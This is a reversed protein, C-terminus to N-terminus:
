SYDPRAYYRWFILNLIIFAIVVGLIGSLALDFRHQVVLLPVLSELVQDLGPAHGGSVLGLRRKIFSTVTDGLLAAFSFVLGTAVDLGEVWACAGTILISFLYGRWTKSPGLLPRGDLFHSGCDLPAAFRNRLLRQGIIPALNAVVILFLLKLYIPELCLRGQVRHTENLLISFFDM